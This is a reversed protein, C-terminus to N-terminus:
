MKLETDRVWGVAGDALQVQAWGGRHSLVTVEAGRPLPYPTRSPYSDANGTRLIAGKETLIVAIPGDRDRPWLMTIVVGAVGLFGIVAVPMAWRPRITLRLSIGLAFLGVFGVGIATLEWTGVWRDWNTPPDPRLRETSESIPPYGVLDRAAELLDGLERDGPHEALGHRFTLIAAPLNGAVVAAKGQDANEAPSAGLLLVVCPLALFACKNGSARRPLKYPPDLSDELASGGCLCGGETREPPDARGFRRKVWGVQENEIPSPESIGAAEGKVESGEGELPSPFLTLM